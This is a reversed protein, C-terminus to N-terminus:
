EGNMFQSGNMYTNILLQNPLHKMLPSDFPKQIRKVVYKQIPKNDKDASIIVAM